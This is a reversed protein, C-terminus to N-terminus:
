VWRFGMMNADCFLKCVVSLRCLKVTLMWSMSRCVDNYWARLNDENPCVTAFHTAISFLFTCKRNSLEMYYRETKSQKNQKTGVSCSGSGKHCHAFDPTPLKVSCLYGQKLSQQVVTHLHFCPPYIHIYSSGWRESDNLRQTVNDEDPVGHWRLLNSNQM